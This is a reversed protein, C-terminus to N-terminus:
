RPAPRHQRQPSLLGPAQSEPRQVRLGRLRVPPKAKTPPMQPRATRTRQPGRTTRRARTPEGTSHPQTILNSQDRGYIRAPSWLRSGSARARGVTAEVRSISWVLAASRDEETGRRREETRRENGPRAAPRRRVALQRLGHRLEAPEPVQDDPLGVAPPGLPARAAARAASPIAGKGESASPGCLPGM